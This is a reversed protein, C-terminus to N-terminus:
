GENDPLEIEIRFHRGKYLREAGKYEIIITKADDSFGTVYAQRYNVFGENGNLDGASLPAEELDDTFMEETLRFGEKNSSGDLIKRYDRFSLVYVNQGGSLYKSMEDFKLTHNDITVEDDLEVTLVPEGLDQPEDYGKVMNIIGLGLEKALTGLPLISCLVTIVLCVKLIQWIWGIVANHAKNMLRGVEGADGINDLVADKAEDESMGDSIYDDFMDEMHEGFELRIKSRDPTFKVHKLMSDLYVDWEKFRM